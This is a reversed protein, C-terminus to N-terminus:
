VTYVSVLDWNENGSHRSDSLITIDKQVYRPTSPSNNISGGGGGGFCQTFLFDENYEYTGDAYTILTYWYWDICYEGGPANPDLPALKGSNGQIEQSSDTYHTQYQM